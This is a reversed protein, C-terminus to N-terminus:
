TRLILREISFKIRSSKLISTAEVQAGDTISPVLNYSKSDIRARRELIM